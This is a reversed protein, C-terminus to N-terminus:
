MSIVDDHALKAVFVAYLCHETQTHRLRLCDANLANLTRNALVLIASLLLRCGANAPIVDRVVGMRPRM